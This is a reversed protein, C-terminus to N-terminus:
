ALVWILMTKLAAPHVGELAQFLQKNLYFAGALTVWLGNVVQGGFYRHLEFSRSQDLTLAYSILLKWVVLVIAAYPVAAEPLAGRDFLTWALGALAAAGAVGGLVWAVTRGLRPSSMAWANFVFWPWAMWAGGLMMAFLPWTPSVVIRNRPGPLPEDVIRYGASAM